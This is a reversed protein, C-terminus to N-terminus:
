GKERCAALATSIEEGLADDGVGYYSMGHIRRLQLIGVDELRDIRALVAAESEGSLTVLDCECLFTKLVAIVLLADLGDRLGEFGHAVAEALEGSALRVEETEGSIRCVYPVTSLSSGALGQRVKEVTGQDLCRIDCNVKRFEFM